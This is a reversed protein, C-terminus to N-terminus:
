PVTRAMSQATANPEAVPMEFRSDAISPNVEVQDVTFFRKEDKGIEGTEQRRSILLGDTAAWDFYYTEVHHERGGIMKISELKVDLATEADLYVWRVGGRPLTVKLKWADRGNVAVLGEVDVDHGRSSYDYLPGYIDASDVSDRLQEESMAQPTSRGRFPTITWGGSGNVCQVSTESNFEFELCMKGPRKQDLKYPVVMDKGLDMQGFLRMATVSQWAEVGGRAEINRAVLAKVFRAERMTESNYILVGAAVSLIVVIVVFLKRPM